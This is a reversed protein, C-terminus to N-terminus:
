RIDRVSSPAIVRPLSMGFVSGAGPTSEVTLQGGLLEVLQRSVTLGLGTGGSRRTVGSDAQWFPEFIRAMHEPAIGTGTDSVEVHIREDTARLRLGIMGADTFKVANSLLNLLVQRLKVADTEITVPRQPLQTEVQLGKRLAVPEVMSIAESAVSVADIREIHLDEKGAEVRSFTLIEEIVTLLHSTSTRIRELKEAQQDTLPGSIRMELLDTYGMIANLPTRLEHSMTAMFNSKTRNAEMAEHFLRLNDVALAVHGALQEAFILDQRTFPPAPEHAVFTIVGITRGRAILPANIVARMALSKWLLFHQEDVSAARLVEDPLESYLRAQGTRFAVVHGAAAGDTSPYLTELSRVTDAHQPDSAMLVLRELAGSELALDIACGNAFSDLVLRGVDQLADRYDLHRVMAAGIDALLRQRESTRKLETVDRTTCVITQVQGDEVIEPNFHSHFHRTGHPTEFAYETDAPLGTDFVVRLMPEWRDAVTDPVGLEASTRGIFASAPMGSAAEIARNVYLHRLQRDFRVIIDPSHEALAELERERRALADEDRRRVIAFAIHGAIGEALRLEERTLGHPRDFYLMFKGLLRKQYVLPIFALGAIRESRFLPRFGALTADAEVDEIVVPQPDEVDNPWPSHGEVAHRYTESLDRWAKFRMVGDADVLLLSARRAPLTGILCDIGERFIDDLDTAHGLAATMRYMATLQEFRRHLEADAAHRETVDRKAGVYAILAGRDDHVSFASLEVTRVAGSRHRSQLEGLYYGDAQLRRLVTAFTEAGFHVAPSQGRLEDMSWGTLRAHAENQEVYTGDPAIIAIADTSREFISRYLSATAPHVISMLSRFARQLSERAISRSLQIAAADRPIIFAIQM